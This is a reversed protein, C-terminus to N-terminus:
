GRYYPNLYGAKYLRAYEDFYWQVLNKLLKLM